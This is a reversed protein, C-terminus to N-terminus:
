YALLQAKVYGNMTGTGTWSVRFYKVSHDKLYWAKIQPSAYTGGDTVTYTTITPTSTADTLAFYNVGDLSGQLTATGALVGSTKIFQAVLTQGQKLSLNYTIFGTAGNVVIASDIGANTKLKVVQIQASAGLALVSFLLIFLKKM